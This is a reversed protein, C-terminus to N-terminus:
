NLNMSIWIRFWYRGIHHLYHRLIMKQFLAMVVCLWPGTSAHEEILRSEVDELCAFGALEEPTIPSEFDPFAQRILLPKKQWYEDLFTQQSLGTNFFESM